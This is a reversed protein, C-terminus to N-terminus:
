KKKRIYLYLIDRNEFRIGAMRLVKWDSAEINKGELLQYINNIKRFRFDDVSECISDLYKKTKPLKNLKKDLLASKNITRGIISKTIRVPKNFRILKDYAKKSLKLLEDDKDCWYDEYERMNTICKKAIPLNKELWKGDNRYLFIYEKKLKNRLETRGMNPYLKMMNIIANRYTIKLEENNYKSNSKLLSKRKTNLLHKLNLKEAYKVVTTSDCYMEEAIATISLNTSILEKLKGEWVEGYSKIRGVYDEAKTIDRSYIFGCECSFTGIAKKSKSDIKIKCDKIVPKMYNKCCHNLCLWKKNSISNISLGRIFKEVTGSLFEIFLVHRLPHICRNSKRVICKLWNFEYNLDIESKFHELLQNGYYKTFEEYLYKQNIRGNFNAIGKNYLIKTYEKKIEDVCYKSEKQNLLFYIDKSINLLYDMMDVSPYKISLDLNTKELYLYEYKKHDNIYPYLMCGHKECVEVGEVQHTRHIYAEGYKNLEEKSCLPCYHIYKKRCIGGAIIGIKHKIGMGNKNVALRIVEEAKKKDMFYLYLPILTNNEIINIPNANLIEKTEKIFDNIHGQFEIIPTTNVEGFLERITDKTNVNGSYKHYRGIVSYLLEDSYIKPFYSILM